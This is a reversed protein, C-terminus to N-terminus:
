QEVEQGISKGMLELGYECFPNIPCEQCRPRAPRCIERGLRILLLHMMMLKEGPILAELVGRTRDYDRGKAFSIRDVVRFINTDVPMVEKNGAFLLVVDATKPGVGEMSMLEKRAEDVPQTLIMSLDGGYRHLVARSVEVIRRSRVASLGAIKIAPRIREPSAKALSDPTVPLEESLRAFARHSNRDSTNQSLITAILVSFPDRSRRDPMEPFREELHAIIEHMRQYDNM